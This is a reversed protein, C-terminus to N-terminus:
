YLRRQQTAEIWGEAPTFTSLRLESVRNPCMTWRWVIPEHWIPLRLCAFLKGVLFCIDSPRHLVTQLLKAGRDMMVQWVCLKISQLFSVLIAIKTSTNHYYSLFMARCSHYQAYLLQCISVVFWIAVNLTYLTQACWIYLLSM